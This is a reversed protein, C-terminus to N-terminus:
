RFFTRWLWTFNFQDKLKSEVVTYNYKTLLKWNNIIYKQLQQINSDNEKNKLLSTYKYLKKSTNSAIRKGWQTRALYNFGGKKTQKKNQKRSKIKNKLQQIRKLERNTKNTKKNKNKNKFTYNLM